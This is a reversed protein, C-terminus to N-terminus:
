AEAIIRRTQASEINEINGTQLWASVAADMLYRQERLILAKLPSNGNLAESVQEGGDSDLTM